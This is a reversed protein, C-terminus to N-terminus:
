SCKHLSSYIHITSESILSTRLLGVCHSQILQCSGETGTLQFPFTNRGQLCVKIMPGLSVPAGYKGKLEASISFFCIGLLKLISSTM